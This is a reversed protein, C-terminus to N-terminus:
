VNAYHKLLKHLYKVFLICSRVNMQNIYSEMSYVSVFGVVLEWPSNYINSFCLIKNYSIGICEIIIIIPIKKKRFIQSFKAPLCNWADILFSYIIENPWFTFLKATPRVPTRVAFGWVCRCLMFNNLFSHLM